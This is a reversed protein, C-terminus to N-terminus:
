SSKTFDRSINDGLKIIFIGIKEESDMQLKSLRIILVYGTFKVKKNEDNNFM